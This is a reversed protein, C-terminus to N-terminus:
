SPSLRACYLREFFLTKEELVEWNYGCGGGNIGTESSYVLLIFGGATLHDRAGGLFREITECGKEGGVWTPDPLGEEYPLYPPNFVIWNFRGDIEEFLDSKKFAMKHLVGADSARRRAAEIAEPNIDVALVHEVEHKLAATVAQIGSGTGMDLVKGSVLREVHRQLMYSDESPPYVSSMPESVGLCFISTGVTATIRKELGNENFIRM